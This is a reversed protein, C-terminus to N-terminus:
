MFYRTSTQNKYQAETITQLVQAFWAYNNGYKKASNNSYSQITINKPQNYNWYIAGGSISASNNSFTNGSDFIFQSNKDIFSWIIKSKM